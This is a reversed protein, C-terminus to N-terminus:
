ENRKEKLVENYIQMLMKYNKEATYKEEFNDCVNKVLNNYGPYNLAKILVNSLDDINNNEFHFGTVGDLIIEQLSGINSGIVPTQVSFAEIITMPFGEYWLSPVVLYKAKSVLELVAASNLRGLFKVSQVMGYEKVLQENEPGDGIILLETNVKNINKKWAELLLHVGKEKSLRGVFVVYDKKSCFFQNNKEIFNPKVVIRDEDIGTEVIKCKAFGTLAIIKDVKKNWTNLIRHTYLMTTLPITQVRSERYCGYKISNLLSGNLCKECVTDERMLLASPCALRYNHLTQVVPINLEQCAYYAAPSIRPFTNHFHVIDPKEEKLKKKLIHYHEKSWVTNIGFKIKNSLGEMSIDDNSVFFTSVNVGQSKLLKIEEEVVKDEGGAIKYQNHVVM